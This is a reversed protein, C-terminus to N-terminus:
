ESNSWFFVRGECTETIKKYHPLNSRCIILENYSRKCYSNMNHTPLYAILNNRKSILIQDNVLKIKIFLKTENVKIPIASTKYLDFNYPVTQLPITAIIAINRNRNIITASSIQYMLDANEEINQM